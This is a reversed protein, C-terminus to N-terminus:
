THYGPGEYRHCRSLDLGYARGIINFNEISMQRTGKNYRESLDNVLRLVNRVYNDSVLADLYWHLSTALISACMPALDITDETADFPILTHVM